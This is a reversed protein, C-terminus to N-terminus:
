HQKEPFKFGIYTGSSIGMLALLQQDFDPMSLVRHVSAIFIVGLVLTWGAIQFRPFSIGNADSLIDVFFRESPLLKVTKELDQIKNDFQELQVKKEAAGINPDIELAAKKITCSALEGAAVKRKNGDIVTTSMATATSIGILTLVSPTLINSVGTVMWIFVYSGIVLLFWFAMQTRGLSFTKRYPRGNDDKGEPQPGADRLLDSKIALWVVLVAAAVLMGLFIWFGNKDITVLDYANNVGRVDTDIPPYNEIGVTISVKRPAPPFLKSRGLLSNWSEQTQSDGEITLLNFTLERGLDGGHRPHLGRFPYGDLYLIINSLNNKALELFEPLNDVEITISEFLKCQGRVKTVKATKDKEKTTEKSVKP